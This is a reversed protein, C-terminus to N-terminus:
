LERVQDGTILGSVDGGVTKVALANAEVSVQETIAGTALEMDVSRDEAVNLVVKTRVASKFGTLDVEIRYTGVPMDPFSYIGQSNTIVTRNFGTAENKVTVSAGPIVGHSSDSVTGRITGTSRQALAPMSLSVLLAVLCWRQKLM